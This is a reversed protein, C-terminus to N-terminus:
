RTLRILGRLHEISHDVEKLSFEADMRVFEDCGNRVTRKNAEYVRDLHREIPLIDIRPDKLL